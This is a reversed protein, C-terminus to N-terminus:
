YAVTLPFSGTYVGPPQNPNVLLKAGVTFTAAGSANLVPSTGSENYSSFFYEIVMIHGSAISVSASRDAPWVITFPANPTGTVTFRGPFGQSSITTNAGTSAPSSLPNVAVWGAQGWPAFVGFHIHSIQTLTIPIEEVTAYAYGPETVSTQAMGSAPLSLLFALVLTWRHRLM